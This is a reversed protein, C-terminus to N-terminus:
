SPDDGPEPSPSSAYRDTGDLIFRALYVLDLTDVAGRTLVSRSAAVDRAATLAEVRQHQEFSLRTAEFVSDVTRDPTSDTM